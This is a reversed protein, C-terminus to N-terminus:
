EGEAELLPEAYAGVAEIELRCRNCEVGAETWAELLPAADTGRLDGAVESGHERMAAEIRDSVEGLRVLAEDYRESLSDHYAILRDLEEVTMATPDDPLDLERQFRLSDHPGALRPASKWVQVAEAALTPDLGQQVLHERMAESSVDGHQVTAWTECEDQRLGGAGLRKRQNAGVAAKL